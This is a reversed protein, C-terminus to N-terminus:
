RTRSVDRQKEETLRATERGKNINRRHALVRRIAVDVDPDADTGYSVMSRTLGIIRGKTTYTLMDVMNSRLNAMNNENVLCTECVNVLGQGEPM